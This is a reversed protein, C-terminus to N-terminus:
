GSFFQPKENGLLSNFYVWILRTTAEDGITWLEFSMWSIELGVAKFSTWVRVPQMTFKQLNM